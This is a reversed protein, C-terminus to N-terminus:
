TGQNLMRLNSQIENELKQILPKFGKYNHDALEVMKNALQAHELALKLNTESKPESIYLSKATALLNTWSNSIFEKKYENPIVDDVFLCNDGLPVDAKNVEIFDEKKIVTAMGRKYLCRAYDVMIDRLFDCISFPKFIKIKPENNKHTIPTYRKYKLQDVKIKPKLNNIIQARM